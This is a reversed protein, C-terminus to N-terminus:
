RRLSEPVTSVDRRTRSPVAEPITSILLRWRVQMECRPSAYFLHFFCNWIDEVKRGVVLVLFPVFRRVQVEEIYAMARAFGGPDAHWEPPEVSM